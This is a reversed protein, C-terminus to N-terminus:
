VAPNTKNPLYKRAILALPLGIMAILILAAKAMRWLPPTVPPRGIRSMPVVLRNMVVWIFLGYLIGLVVPSLKYFQLPRYAVFFLITFIFAILYHCLLGFLQMDAGVTRAEPGFVASAIYNLVLLPNRGTSVYVDVFASLIDLTGVLLGSLLIIKFLSPPPHVPM